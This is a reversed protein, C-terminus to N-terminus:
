KAKICNEIKRAFQRWLCTELPGNIGFSMQKAIEDIEVDSLIEEESCTTKAVSNLNFFEKRLSSDKLSDAMEKTVEVWKPKVMVEQVNVCVYFKDTSINHYVQDLCHLPGPEIYVKLKADPTNNTEDCIAKFDNM